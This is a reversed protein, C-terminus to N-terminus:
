DLYESAIHSGRVNHDATVVIFPSFALQKPSGPYKLISSVKPVIRPLLSFVKLLCVSTRAFPCVQDYMLVFIGTLSIKSDEKKARMRALQGGLQVHVGFFTSQWLRLPIVCTGVPIGVSVSIRSRESHLMLFM